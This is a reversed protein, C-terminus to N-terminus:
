GGVARVGDPVSPTDVQAPAPVDAGGPSAQEFCGHIGFGKNLYHDLQFQVLPRPDLGALRRWVGYLVLCDVLAGHKGTAERLNQVGWERALTDLTNRGKARGRRAEAREFTCTYPPIARPRGTRCLEALLFALDFKANHIIFRSGTIFCDLEPWVQAFLPQTALYEDMLGHIAAAGPDCPREPNLHYHAFRGTLEGDVIEVAALSVLRHERSNLGTTETDFILQRV